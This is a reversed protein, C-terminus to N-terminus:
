RRRAARAGGGLAAMAGLVFGLDYWFGSNPFAHVRVDALISGVLSVLVLFGHLLRSFFGPAGPVGGESGPLRRTCERRSTLCM